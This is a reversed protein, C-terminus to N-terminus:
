KTTHTVSSLCCQRQRPQFYDKVFSSVIAMVLSLLIVDDVISALLSPIAGICMTLINLPDIWGPYTHV